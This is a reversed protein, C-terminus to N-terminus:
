RRVAKRRPTRAVPRKAPVTAVFDIGRQIWTALAADTRYGQPDVLVFGTPRRGAFELPRVHPETLMRQYAERGVRVMLASGTVLAVQGRLEPFRAPLSQYLEALNM